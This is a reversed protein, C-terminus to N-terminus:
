GPIVNNDKLFKTKWSRIMDDESVTKYERKILICLAFAVSTTAMGVVIATLMLVQPVPNSYVAFTDTLIPATGGIIKGMSIYFFIISSQFINLGVVKKVVHPASIVIYLGTFALCFFIIYNVHNFILFFFSVDLTM